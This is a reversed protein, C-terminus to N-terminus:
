YLNTTFANEWIGPIGMVVLFPRLPIHWEFSNQSIIVQPFEYFFTSPNLHWIQVWLLKALLQSLPLATFCYLFLYLFLQHIRWQTIYFNKTVMPPPPLQLAKKNMWIDSWTKFWLIILYHKPDEIKSQGFM